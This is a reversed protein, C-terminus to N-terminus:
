FPYPTIHCINDCFAADLTTGTFANAGVLCYLFFFLLKGNIIYLANLTTCANTNAGICGNVLLLERSESLKSMRSQNARVIPATIYETM